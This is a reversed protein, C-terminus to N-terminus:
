KGALALSSIMGELGSGRRGGGPSPPVSPLVLVLLSSGSRPPLLRAHRAAAALSPSPFPIPPPPSPFISLPRNALAASALPIGSIKWVPPFSAQNKECNQERDGKGPPFCKTM